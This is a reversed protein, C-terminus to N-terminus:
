RLISDYKLRITTNETNLKILSAKLPINNHYYEILRDINHKCIEHVLKQM